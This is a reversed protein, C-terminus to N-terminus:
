KTRLRDVWRQLLPKNSVLLATNQNRLYLVEAELHQIYNTNSADPVSCYKTIANTINSTRTGPFRDLEMILTADLRFTYAKRM